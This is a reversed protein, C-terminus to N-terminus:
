CKNEGSGSANPDYTDPNYYFQSSESFGFIITDEVLQGKNLITMSATTPRHPCLLHVGGGTRPWRRGNGDGGFGGDGDGSALHAQHSSSQGPRSSTSAPPSCSYCPPVAGPPSPEGTEVRGVGGGIPSKPSPSVQSPNPVPLFLFTPLARVMNGAAHIVGDDADYKYSLDVGAEAAVYLAM